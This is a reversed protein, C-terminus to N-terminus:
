GAQQSCLVSACKCSFCRMEGGYRGRCQQRRNLIRKLYQCCLWFANPTVSCLMKDLVFAFCSFNNNFMMQSWCHFLRLSFHNPLHCFCSQLFLDVWWKTSFIEIERHSQWIINSANWKFYVSWLDRVTSEGKYMLWSLIMWFLNLSFLLLLRCTSNQQM